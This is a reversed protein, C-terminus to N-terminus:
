NPLKRIREVFGFLLHTGSSQTRRSFGSCGKSRATGSIPTSKYNQKTVQSSRALSARQEGASNPEAISLRNIYTMTLAERLWPNMRDFLADLIEGSEARLYVLVPNPGRGRRILSTNQRFGDGPLVSFLNGSM